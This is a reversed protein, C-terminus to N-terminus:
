FSEEVFDAENWDLVALKPTSSNEVLPAVSGAVEVLGESSYSISECKYIRTYENDSVRCFVTGHLATTLM